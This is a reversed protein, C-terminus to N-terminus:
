PYGDSLAFFSGFVWALRCPVLWRTWPWGLCSRTFTLCFRLGSWPTRLMVSLASGTKGCTYLLIGIWHFPLAFPFTTGGYFVFHLKLLPAGGFIVQLIGSTVLAAACDFSVNLLMMAIHVFSSGTHCVLWVFFVAWRCRYYALLGLPAAALRLASLGGLSCSLSPHMSVPWPGL